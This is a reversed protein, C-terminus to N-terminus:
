IKRASSGVKKGILYKNVDENIAKKLIPMVEAYADLTKQIDEDSHSYSLMHYIWLIGRRVLEQQFLSKLELWDNGKNDTFQIISRPGWGVCKSYNSLGFESALKNYGDKLKNGELWIQKIVNKEQIERITEISAALSLAEGGFTLSFFVDNLEIMYDRKGVLAALPMGNAMAKGFCALDPVVGYYEQAGGLAMRFGTVVEDFILLAGNEHTLKEIKRLFDNKPEEVGIPEIIVAAIQNKNEQFIKELSEIQNYSFDLTLEKMMRPIGKDKSNCHSWDLWGHYGAQAIKERGTYARSIKVAAGNVDAGNKSFRVMEACPIVQTLLEALEVELPHMLSFSIGQKLQETIAKDIRPYSYGLIVPGLANIYDIYENGDVDWVHSGKGRQLYV